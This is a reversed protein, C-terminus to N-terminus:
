KNYVGYKRLMKHIVQHWAAEQSHNRSHNTELDFQQQMAQRQKEVQKYLSQIEVKSNSTFNFEHIRRRLKRAHIETIDFHAREHGLLHDSTDRRQYWSFEPYFHATVVTEPKNLYGEGDIEYSQSIGTSSSAAFGDISQTRGKFDSWTLKLDDEWALRELPHAASTFLIILVCGLAYIFNRIM